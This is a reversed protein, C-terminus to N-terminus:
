PYIRGEVGRITLQPLNVEKVSTLPVAQTFSDGNGPELGANKFENVLYEVTLTEGHTGLARGGFEDSILTEIHKTLTTLSIVNIGTKEAQKAQSCTHQNPLPEQSFGFLFLPLAWTYIKM